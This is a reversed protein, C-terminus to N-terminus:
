RVAPHPHLLPLLAQLVQPVEIVRFTREMAFEQRACVAVADPELLLPDAEAPHSCGQVAQSASSRVWRPGRRVRLPERIRPAAM